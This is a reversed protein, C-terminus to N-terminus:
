LNDVKPALKCERRPLVNLAVDKPRPQKSVTGKVIKKLKTLQKMKVAIETQIIQKDQQM